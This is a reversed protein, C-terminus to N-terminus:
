EIIASILSINVSNFCSYILISFSRIVCIFKISFECFFTCSICILSIMPKNTCHSISKHFPYIFSSNCPTFNLFNFCRILNFLNYLFNNLRIFILCFFLCGSSVYIYVFISIFHCFVCICSCFFLYIKCFYNLFQATFFIDLHILVDFRKSTIITFEFM